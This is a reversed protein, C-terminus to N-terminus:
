VGLPLLLEGLRLVVIVTLSVNVKDPAVTDAVTVGASVGVLVSLWVSERLKEAGEKVSVLVLSGESDRVSESLTM